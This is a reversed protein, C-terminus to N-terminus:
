VENTPVPTATVPLNKLLLKSSKSTPQMCIGASLVQQHVNLLVLM